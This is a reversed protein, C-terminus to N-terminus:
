AATQLRQQSSRCRHASGRHTPGEKESPDMGDGAICLGLEINFAELKAEEGEGRLINFAQTKGKLGM